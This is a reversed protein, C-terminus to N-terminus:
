ADFFVTEGDGQLVIDFHYVPRGEDAQGSSQAVLTERREAPVTALVPDTENAPQGQFYVRTSLRDLLGRAFVHVNLHPAQERGDPAPVSGPVVTLLRYFGDGDTAARGFGVFGEELPLDRRDLPHRYRGAANAQWIEVVADDVPRGAGDLVRGEVVVAEGSVAPGAVAYMPVSFLSDYFFPGVTQPPTHELEPM